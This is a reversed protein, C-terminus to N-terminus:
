SGEARQLYRIASQLNEVSDAFFGLARNCPGCLLGRVAESIHCHDIDLKADKKCIACVGGQDVFLRDYEDITLGRKLLRRKHNVTDRGVREVYKLQMGSKCPRCTRAPQDRVTDWGFEGEDRFVKCTGCWRLGPGAVPKPPRIPRLATGRRAQMYHAQCLGHGFNPRECGEFTCPQRGKPRKPKPGPRNGHDSWAM